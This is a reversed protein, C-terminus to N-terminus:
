TMVHSLSSNLWVQQHQPLQMGPFCFLVIVGAVLLMAHIGCTVPRRFLATICGVFALCAVLLLLVVGPASACSLLTSHVAAAAAEACGQDFSLTCHRVYITEGATASPSGGPSNCSAM